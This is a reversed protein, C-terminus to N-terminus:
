ISTTSVVQGKRTIDLPKEREIEGVILLQRSDVEGRKMGLSLPTAPETDMSTWDGMMRAKKKGVMHALGILINQFEM